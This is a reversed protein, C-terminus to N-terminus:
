AADGPQLGVARPRVGHPAGALCAWWHGAVREAVDSWTFREAAARIARRDWSAALAERVAAVWQQVDRGDVVIVGVASTLVQRVDGVDAAVAPCGCALAERLANPSGERESPLVFVDAANLWLAVREPAVSGTITVRDEVGSAAVLARLRRAYRGSAAVEGGVIVWRLDPNVAALAPIARLFLHFGKVAALHGVSVLLPGRDVIGLRRRAAARDMLRFRSADVGNEAVHIRDPRVGLTRALTALEQSVTIVSAARSLAWRMAAARLRYRAMVLESGRLTVVVPRRWWWGLLVAAVGDPYGFHADILDFAFRRRLRGVCLVSSLFLWIGDLCKFLGPVHVFLPHVVAIGHRHATRSAPRPRCWGVPVVVRVAAHRALHRVREEIFLGLWPAAAHPYVTTFVLVRM